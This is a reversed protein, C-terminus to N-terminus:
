WTLQIFKGFFPYLTLGEISDGPFGLPLSELPFLRVLPIDNHDLFSEFDERVVIGFINDWLSYIM